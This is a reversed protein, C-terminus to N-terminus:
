KTVVSVVLCSPWPLSSTSPKGVANPQKETEGVSPTVQTISVPDQWGVSRERPCEPSDARTEGSEGVGHQLDTGEGTEQVAGRGVTLRAVWAPLVTVPAETSVCRQSNVSM